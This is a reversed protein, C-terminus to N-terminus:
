PFGPCCDGNAKGSSLFELFGQVIAGNTGLTAFDFSAYLFVGNTRLTAFRLRLVRKGM